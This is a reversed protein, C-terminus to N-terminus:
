RARLIGWNRSTALRSRSRGSALAAYSRGGDDRGVPSIGQLIPMCGNRKVEFKSKKKCYKECRNGGGEPGLSPYDTPHYSHISVTTRDTKNVTSTGDIVWPEVNCPRPGPTKGFKESRTASIVHM